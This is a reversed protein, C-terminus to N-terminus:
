YERTGSSLERTNWRTGSSLERTSGRSGSWLERTNGRTGQYQLSSRVQAGQHERANRVQTGGGAAADRAAGGPDERRCRHRTPLRHTAKRSGISTRHQVAPMLGANAWRQGRQTDTTARSPDPSIFVETLVIEPINNNNNNNFKLGSHLAPLSHSCVILRFVGVGCLWGVSSLFLCFLVLLCFLFLLDHRCSLMPEARSARWDWVM